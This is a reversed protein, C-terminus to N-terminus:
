NYGEAQNNCATIDIKDVAKERRIFSVICFFLFDLEM